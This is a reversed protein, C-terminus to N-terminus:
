ESRLADAPKLRGAKIAPVIGALLSLGITFGIILVFDQVTYHVPLETFQYFRLFAAETNTLQVLSQVIADRNALILLALGVGLVTGTVGIVGAQLGFCLAVTRPTAGMAVLLGIERTKRIVSMMLSIAISFSAVLVIFTIIFFMVSKELSLIFLFDRNTELWTVARVDEPLGAELREAVDAVQETFPPKLRVTLGHVGNGLAYLEQMLRLSVIVTNSDIQGYGTHYLGALELSRPLLVEDSKLLELMLPTYVEITDGPEAGLSRALNDGMFIREDDLDELEGVVMFEDLPVVANEFRRDIGRVVPFAPIRDALLMLVGEGYPSVAEVAPDELVQERLAQWDYLIRGSTIRIDGNNAKLKDRIEYGFGNMVSQVVLLVMVGITVGAISIFAFFSFRRGSPFLQKVALYLSWPM